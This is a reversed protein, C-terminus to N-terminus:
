TEQARKETPIDLKLLNGKRMRSIRRILLILLSSIGGLATGIICVLARRPGSKRDPVVASDILRFVYEERVDALMTIRTQSEILQYFVRQMDILQTSELQQRLFSIASNAEHVDRDRVEQNLDRVLLNVWSAAEEPNHWNIAVTVIGTTRDPGAVSLIGNFVRYAELATPKGGKGVWESTSTDYITEHIVARQERKNWSSAFLPVLLNHRDIFRSIFQHSRLTAIAANIGEGSNNGLNVGLLAAAGGFQSMAGSSQGTDAAVLVSEARYFETMMLSVVISIIAAASTISIILWKEAWCIGILERLDIEDEDYQNTAPESM